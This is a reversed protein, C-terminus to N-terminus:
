IKDFTQLKFSTFPNADLGLINPSSAKVKPNRPSQEVVKSRVPAKKSYKM